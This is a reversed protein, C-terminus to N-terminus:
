PEDFSWAGDSLTVFIQGKHAAPPTSFIRNVAGRPHRLTAYPEGTGRRYVYLFAGDTGYIFRESVALDGFQGGPAEWIQTGDRANYARLKEDSAGSYVVDGHVDPASILAVPLSYSPPIHTPVHWAIRQTNRDVAYLDGTLLSVVVLGRWVAPATWAMTGSAQRPFIFRWFERGSHKDIALLWAESKSGLSDLNHWMTAFLTDGALRVAMSGSRHQLTPEPRWVWKAIGTKIDVASISAGWAPVYVTSEDADTRAREVSGPRPAVRYMTDLPAHYRWLEVGTAADLGSTHFQVAVVLIGSSLAFTGGIEASASHPSPGVLTSWKIAGTTPNRSVVNGNGMAFYVADDSVAPRPFPFGHAQSHFWRENVRGEGPRTPHNGCDAGLLVGFLVLPSLLRARQWGRGATAIYAVVPRFSRNASRSAIPRM